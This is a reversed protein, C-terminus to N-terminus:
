KKITEVAVVEEGENLGSIIEVRGDRSKIGIKIPVNEFQDGALIKKVFYNGKEQFISYLPLVLVNEKKITEIVLNATLGSKLRADKKDFSVKIKYNVVGDVITEAPEIYSVKGMWTEQPYADLTIEVKNGLVLKGVEIEPINATIEFDGDSMVTILNVGPNATEGVVADQRTVLGFIPSIITNKSIQARIQNAEAEAKEVDAEGILIEEPTTLVLDLKNKASLVAQKANQVSSIASNIETRASSINTRYSTLTTESYESTATLSNVNKSIKDLYERTRYLNNLDTTYEKDLDSKVTLGGIRKNWDVLKGELERRLFSFEILEDVTVNDLRYYANITTPDDFFIDTLNRIANDMKTYADILALLWLDEANRLDNEAGLVESSSFNKDGSTVGKKLESLRAEKAKLNALSQDLQAYLDNSDLTALVQGPSVHDGVKVKASFVRGSRDFSMEINKASETKGTILVEESITQKSVKVTTQNKDSNNFWFFGVVILVVALSLIVINRKSTFFKKFM